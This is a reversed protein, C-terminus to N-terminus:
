QLPASDLFWVSQESSPLRQQFMSAFLLDLFVELIKLVSCLLHQITFFPLVFIHSTGADQQALALAPIYFSGQSSVLSFELDPHYCVARNAVVMM